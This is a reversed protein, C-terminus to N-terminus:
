LWNVKSGIKYFILGCYSGIFEPIGVCKPYTNRRYRNLVTSSLEEVDYIISVLGNEGNYYEEFHAEDKEEVDMYCFLFSGKSEGWWDLRGNELVVRARETMLETGFTNYISYYEWGGETKPEHIILTQDGVFIAKELDEETMNVISTPSVATYINTGSYERSLVFWSGIKAHVKVQNSKLYNDLDLYINNIEPIYKFIASRSYFTPLDYVKCHPDQYDCVQTGMKGVVVENSEICRLKGETDFYYRGEIRKIIKSTSGTIKSVPEEGPYKGILSYLEYNKNKWAALTLVGEYFCINYNTLGINIEIDRNLRLKWSGEKTILGSSSVIMSYRDSETRGVNSTFLNRYKGSKIDKQTAYYYPEEGLYNKSLDKGVLQNNLDVTFEGEKTTTRKINIIIELSVGIGQTNVFETYGIPSSSIPSIYVIVNFGADGLLKKYEFPVPVKGTEDEIWARKRSIQVFKESDGTLNTLFFDELNYLSIRESFSSKNYLIIELCNSVQSVSGSFYNNYVKNM